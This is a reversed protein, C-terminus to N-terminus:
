DHKGRICINNNSYNLSNDNCYTELKTNLISLYKKMLYLQEEAEEVIVSQKKLWKNFNDTKLSLEHSEKLMSYIRDPLIVLTDIDVLVSNWYKRVYPNPHFEVITKIGLIIHDYWHTSEVKGNYEIYYAANSVNLISDDSYKTNSIYNKGILWRLMKTVKKLESCETDCGRLLPLLKAQHKLELKTVWDHLISNNVEEM